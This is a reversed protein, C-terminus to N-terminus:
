SRRQWECVEQQCSSQRKRANDGAQAPKMCRVIDQTEGITYDPRTEVM